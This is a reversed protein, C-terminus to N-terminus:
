SVLFMGGVMGIEIKQNIGKIFNDLSKRRGEDERM